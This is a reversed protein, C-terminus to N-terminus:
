ALQRESAKGRGELRPLAAVLESPLRRSAAWVEVGILQGSEDYDGVGWPARRSRVRGEHHAVRLYAIDGDPTYYSSDSRVANM